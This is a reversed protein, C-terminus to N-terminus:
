TKFKTGGGMVGSHVDLRTAKGEGKKHPSPLPKDALPKIGVFEASFRCQSPNRNTVAFVLLVARPNGKRDELVAGIEIPQYMDPILKEKEKLSMRAKNDSIKVKAVEINAQMEETFSKGEENEGQDQRQELGESDPTKEM